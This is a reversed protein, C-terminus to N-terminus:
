DGHDWKGLKCVCYHLTNNTNPQTMCVDTNQTVCDSCDALTASCRTAFPFKYTLLSCCIFSFINCPIWLIHSMICLCSRSLTSVYLRPWESNHISIFFCNIHSISLSLGHLYFFLFLFLLIMWDTLNIHWHWTLLGVLIMLSKLTSQLRVLSLITKNPCAWLIEM